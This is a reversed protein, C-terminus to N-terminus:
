WFSVLVRVELDGERCLVLTEIRDLSFIQVYLDCDDSLKEQPRYQKHKLMIMQPPPPLSLHSPIPIQRPRRRVPPPM